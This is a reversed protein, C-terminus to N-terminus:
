DYKIGCKVFFVIRQKVSLSIYRSLNSKWFLFFVPWGLKSSRRCITWWRFALEKELAADDFLKAKSNAKLITRLWNHVDELFDATCDFEWQAIRTHLALIKESFKVGLDALQKNRVLDATKIQAKKHVTGINSNHIRHHLLVKDINALKHDKSIRVWLDYDEAWFANEEYFLNSNLLVSRRMIVSPHVISSSFLQKCCIEDHNLPYKWLNEVEGFIKAWSGCVAVEPNSAMFEFQMQLRNHESIDDADMRAILEGKSLLIGKNLSKILGINKQHVLCIRYDTYSELIQKTRDTSGDNIILFEFDTFTQNLISDVAESLYAEGNYVPMLVTIKPKQGWM